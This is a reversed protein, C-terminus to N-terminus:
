RLTGLLNRPPFGGGKRGGALGRDQAKGRPAKKPSLHLSASGDFRFRIMGASPLHM